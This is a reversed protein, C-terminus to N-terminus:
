QFTSSKSAKIIKSIKNTHNALVHHVYKAYKGFFHILLKLFVKSDMHVERIFPIKKEYWHPRLSATLLSQAHAKFCGTL